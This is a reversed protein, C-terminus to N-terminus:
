SRYLPRWNRELMMLSPPVEGVERMFTAASHRYLHRATLEGRAHWTANLLFAHLAEDLPDLPLLREALRICKEYERVQFWHEITELGVQTVWRRLREREEQAWESESAPLFEVSPVNPRSSPCGSLATELERVDWGLYGQVQYVQHAADYGIALGCVRESLDGRVQHFYNKARLAPRDPFLDRQLELLRVRGRRLVYALVEVTRALRFRVPVGNVELTAQGLTHLFLQPPREARLLVEREFSAPDLAQLATQVGPLLLWEPGLFPAVPLTAAVEAARRLHAGRAQFDVEALALHVLLLARRHGGAELMCRAEELRTLGAHEGRRAQWFGARHHLLARDYSSRTLHEARALHIRAQADEGGLTAVALLWLRLRLETRLRGETASLLATFAAQAAPVENRSWLLQARLEARLVDADEESDQDLAREAEDLHGLALLSSAQALRVYRLRKRHGNQAAFTFYSLASAHEDFHGHLHGLLTSVSVKVDLPADASFVWAQNALALLTDRGEGMVWLVRTRARYWLAADSAELEGPTVQDLASLAQAPDGQQFYLSALHVGASRVGRNLAQQLRLGAELVQGLHLHCVGAWRFDTPTPQALAGFLAVGQAYEGAQAAQQVATM